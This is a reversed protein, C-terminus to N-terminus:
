FFWGIVGLLGAIIVNLTHKQREQKILQRLADVEAKSSRQAEEHRTLQDRAESLAERQAAGTEVLQHTELELRYAELARLAVSQRKLQDKLETNIQILREVAARTLEVQAISEDIRPTVSASVRECLEDERRASEEISARLQAALEDLKAHQARQSEQAATIEGHVQDFTDSSRQYLEDADRQFRTLEERSRQAWEEADQARQDRLEALLAQVDDLQHSM